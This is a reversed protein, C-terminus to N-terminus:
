SRYPYKPASPIRKKVKIKKDVKKKAGFKVLERFDRRDIRLAFCIQEKYLAQQFSDMQNVLEFVERIGLDRAPGDMQAVHEVMCMVFSKSSDLVLRLQVKQEELPIGEVTWKMLLDNADKGM